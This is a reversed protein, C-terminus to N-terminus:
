LYLKATIPKRCGVEGKTIKELHQYRSYQGLLIHYQKVEPNLYDYGVCKMPQPGDDLALKAAM